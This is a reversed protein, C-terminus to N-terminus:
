KYIEDIAKTYRKELHNRRLKLSPTLMGNSVSWEDHVLNFGRIKEHKALDTNTDEIISQFHALVEPHYVMYMPSTWHIGQEECWSKLHEFDPRILAGTFARQFGVVVARDVFHSRSLSMEIRYPVVYEGFSNKFIDKARSTIKLFRGKVFTGIDGTHLWGDDSLVAATAKPNQYYGTMVGPGRVLIEGSGIDTAGAIRVEMGPIPIGVSGDLHGGPAFRNVSVVGGSESLGYGERVSIGASAFLRIIEVDMAAGGVLIGKLRRGFVPRLRRLVIWRALTRTMFNGSTSQRLAWKTFQARYFGKRDAAKRFSRFVQELIRPVATVYHPHVLPFLLRAHRPATAFHINTGATLYTYIVVREFVHSIPLYSLVTHHYDIPIVALSSLVNSILARHSLMVGKPIGTTGSTFIILATDDPHAQHKPYDEPEVSVLEELFVIDPFSTGELKERIVGSDEKQAVIMKPSLLAVIDTVAAATLQTYLPCVVAGLEMLAFEAAIIDVRGSTSLVCVHDGATIGRAFLGAKLSAIRQCFVDSSVDRSKKETWEVLRIHAPYISRRYGPIDTLLKPQM